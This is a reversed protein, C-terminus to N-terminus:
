DWLGSTFRFVKRFLNRYFDNFRQLDRKSHRFLTPIEGFPFLMLSAIYFCGIILIIAFALLSLVSFILFQVGDGISHMGISGGEPTSTPQRSNQLDHVAPSTSSEPLKNQFEVDEHPNLTQVGTDIRNERQLLISDCANNFVVKRVHHM